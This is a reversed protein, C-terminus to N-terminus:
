VARDLRSRKGAQIGGAIPVVGRKQALITLWRSLRQFEEFAPVAVLPQFFHQAPQNLLMALNVKVDANVRSTLVGHVQQGEEM